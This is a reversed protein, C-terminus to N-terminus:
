KEIRGNSILINEYERQSIPCEILKLFQENDLKLQKAMLSLLKRGYDKRGHSVKTFISTKYGDTSYYHLYIHDRNHRIFGKKELGRIIEGTKKIM